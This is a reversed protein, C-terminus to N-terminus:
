IIFSLPHTPTGAGLFRYFATNRSIANGYRGKVSPWPQIRIRVIRLADGVKLTVVGNYGVLPVGVVCEMCHFPCPQLVGLTRERSGLLIACHSASLGSPYPQLPPDGFWFTSVESYPSPAPRFHLLIWHGIINWTFHPTHIQHDPPVFSPENQQRQRTHRVKTM